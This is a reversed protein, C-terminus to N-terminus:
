PLVTRKIAPTASILSNTVM